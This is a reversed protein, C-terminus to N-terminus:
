NNKTQNYISFINKIQNFKLSKQETHDLIQQERRWYYKM